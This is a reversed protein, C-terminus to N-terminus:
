LAGLEIETVLLGKRKQAGHLLCASGPNRPAQCSHAPLWLPAISHESLLMKLSMGTKSGLRPGTPWSFPLTFLEPYKLSSQRIFERVGGM